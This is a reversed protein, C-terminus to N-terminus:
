ADTLESITLSFSWGITINPNFQLFIDVNASANTSRFAYIGTNAVPFVNIGANSDGAVTIGNISITLNWSQALVLGAFSVRMIYYTLPKVAVPINTTWSGGIGTTTAYEFIPAIVSGELM